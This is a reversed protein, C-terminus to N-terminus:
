LARRGAVAPTPEGAREGDGSTATTAAPAPTFGTRPHVPEIAPVAVWTGLAGADESRPPDPDILQALDCLDLVRRAAKSPARLSLSRSRPRLHNRAKVIVSVTTVDMFQVESLDVVLDAEDLAIARALTAALETTTALDHEGRLWVVTRTGDRGAVARDQVNRPV